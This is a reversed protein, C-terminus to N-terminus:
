FKVNLGFSFVRPTVMYNYQYGSLSQQPNIGQRATKTFLNECSASVSIAQLSLKKVLSKPLQYSLNINKLVLYDRSTLWRSSTTNNYTSMESDIKPIGGVWLRDASDETMGEPAAKWSKMIDAHKNSVSGSMSMLTSYVADYVKGGLSYTFMASLTLGKWSASANFSGYVSPLASGHWEKQAYATNNVYAKGNIWTLHESIDTAASNVTGDANYGGVRNGDLDNYYYGNGEYNPIYMANGTLQDVGAYTYTYYEYRSRGEMINYVSSIIGDKNQEPLKLIKNKLITANAGVNVRWDRNRFVDVDVAIEVGRNSITGLNKTVTAEAYDTSTGGASLPLYVDFLLDKNRKDFYELSFNLRNFLRGEVAIGWSEGTEWKLDESANQSLYFAGSNQNQSISYLAMYAYYDAGADNGVQGWNARLKLNDVWRVPKMFAEESVVWNAGISGFNGWRSDPAFRSSGDRRFSAELNYREKFNYRVRGLYSETRYNDAYGYFSSITSFNSLFGKDAFTEGTKFGYTYNRNWYYNEHGLLVDVTHDGYKHNWRLQEQLTYNKYRYAIYKARGGNGKGDGIVASNYTQQESNRVNLDGKLTFTFDKLFYINAYAIGHITNRVTKDDNLENEWIVHRDANQNRTLITVKEGTEEDKVEYSGPDYQKRNYEDLIYEGTNVDHLHVPYIPAMSRCYSFANNYSNYTDDKGGAISHSNQHTGSVNLGAKLWKVPNMNVSVRGSLRDFSSSKVYGQEDLYGLSFYYDSKESAGNGSVVYEQRLGSHIAADYWDLDEAYKPLIAADAVMKGNADFLQDGPKNFINLYLYSDILNKTTYDSAEAVTEYAGSTLLGNRVGQWYAEMFQRPDTRKYEKIGRNYTGVNIKLDMSLKGSKGQKTTILIVGNSARNGYLACSAADKLVSMSEIDSPNLDSINGGYPVGDIVYLPTTVGNVTGVGRIYVSPDSGPAGYTSNVQLGTTTGELASTVSSAPRLDIQEQGVSSIAGTLSSKKATGYAVAVVVEDLLEADPQLVIKLEKKVGVELTKMGVYSVVLTRASSPLNSLIFKGDLDTITGLTTGKVVVSAGVVPLKDEESIVIGTVRTVQAIALSVMVFLCTFLLTFRKRM